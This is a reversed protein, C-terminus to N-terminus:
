SIVTHSSHLRTSKRNPFGTGDTDSGFFTTDVGDPAVIEPKQSRPDPAALRNGAVDFLIPTTGSSSFSELIPPFVSFAPTNSYRAAGVAEAGAANAHGFITSSQTDFENIVASGFYVYKILGPDAGSHKVIMLNMTVPAAGNNRVGLFEVADGGVNNFASGALVQTASADFLYIDLDNENGPSGSVSFFPSDWQLSFRLTALGPVTIRQFHDNPGSSAFNHAIGGFVHPAHPGSPIAGDAFSDGARFASQYAQRAENGAASFYAVGSAVVSEVAKPIIGDRLFLAASFFFFYLL